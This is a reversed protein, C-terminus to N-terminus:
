QLYHPSLLILSNIFCGTSVSQAQSDRIMQLCKMVYVDKSPKSKTFDLMSKCIDLSNSTVSVWNKLLKYVSGSDGSLVAQRLGPQFRSMLAKM